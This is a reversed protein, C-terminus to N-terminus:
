EAPMCLFGADYLETLDHSSLDRCHKQAEAVVRKKEAEAKRNYDLPRFYDSWKLYHTNICFCACTDKDFHKLIEVKVWEAGDAGQVLSECEVGAPPLAVAKQAEYDYWDSVNEANSKSEPIESVSDLYSTDASKYRRDTVMFSETGSWHWCDNSVEANFSWAKSDKHRIKICVDDPLDPKKGNTPYEVGYRYGNIYGLERARQQFEEKTCLTIWFIDNQKYRASFDLSIYPHHSLNGRGAVNLVSGRNSPWLGDNDRIAEDILEQKNMKGFRM